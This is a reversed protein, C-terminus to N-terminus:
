VTLLGRCATDWVALGEWLWDGGVGKTVALGARHM